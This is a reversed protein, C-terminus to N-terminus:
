RYRCCQCLFIVISCNLLFIQSFLIKCVESQNKSMNVCTFLTEISVAPVLRRNKLLVPIKNPFSTYM